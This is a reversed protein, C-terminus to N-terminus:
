RSRLLPSNTGMATDPQGGSSQSAVVRTRGALRIYALFTMLGVSGAVTLAIPLVLLDM